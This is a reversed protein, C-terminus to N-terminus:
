ESDHDTMEVQSCPLSIVAASHTTGTMAMTLNQIFAYFPEALNRHRNVFNLVEDCLVLVKGGAAKVLDGIATTGAPTTQAETALAAVGADGALQQALDLWPTERGPKTDWANGVFVGVRAKPVEPIGAERLV